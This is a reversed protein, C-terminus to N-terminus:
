NEQNEIKHARFNDMYIIEKEEHLEGRDFIFDFTSVLSLKETYKSDLDIRVNNVGPVLVITEQAHTTNIAFGMNINNKTPNYIDILLYDCDTFDMKQFYQGKTIFELCPNTRGEWNETGDIVIQLAKKGRTAHEEVMTMRGLSSICLANLTEGYTEFDALIYCGNEFVNQATVAYPDIRNIPPNGSNNGGSNSSENSKNSFIATTQKQNVMAKLKQLEKAVDVM